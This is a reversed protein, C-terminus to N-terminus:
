ADGEVIEEEIIQGGLVGLVIDVPPRGRWQSDQDRVEPKESSSPQASPQPGSKPRPQPESRPEPSAPQPEPAPTQTFTPGSSEPTGEFHPDFDVDPPPDFHPEPPPPDDFDRSDLPPMAEPAEPRASRGQPAREPSGQDEQRPTDEARKQPEQTPAQEPERVSEQKPEQERVPEQDRAPEPERKPSRDEEGTSQPAHVQAEPTSTGPASTEPAPTEPAPTEPAAQPGRELDAKVQDLHRLVHVRAQVERGFVQTLANGIAEEGNRAKLRGVNGENQLFLHTTVGHAFVDRVDTEILPVYMSGARGLTDLLEWWKDRVQDKGPAPVYGPPLSGPVAGRPQAGAGVVDASSQSTPAAARPEARPTREKPQPSDADVPVQQTPLGDRQERSVKPTEPRSSRAPSAPVAQPHSQRTPASSSPVQRGAGFSSSPTSRSGQPVPTQARQTRQEPSAPAAQPRQAQPRPAVAPAEQQGASGSVLLRALLLELQMRPASAVRMERLAAEVMDARVSLAQTGWKQAEMQMLALVDSPVEVLIDAAREGALACVMMDRLRQLLDTTFQRPEHGAEVIEEVIRFVKSGDGEGLAEVTADLLAADTFGLLRVAQETTVEGDSGAILQDMTSLTDRVSGGGARIMLPYVGEEIKVDEEEALRKLYPMLPGPGVLRFPYHHTRSRITTIVKEPETTAFIFKAHEPPEEVVKLLANFGEKTVMHAEDLIFIRYRDRTPAYTVHERLNRADDVGSHSAADIEVVDLSGPGGTALDVCSPCTGCPTPTPGEACNLSRALIRASTTKGCGRPGSFLFAHAVRSTELATKLADTVHEQGIVDDFTDPRYRRYLATTM